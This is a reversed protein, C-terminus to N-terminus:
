KINSCSLIVMLMLRNMYLVCCVIKTHKYVDVSVVEVVVVLGVWVLLVVVVVVLDVVVVLVVVVVENVTCLFLDFELGPRLRLWDM